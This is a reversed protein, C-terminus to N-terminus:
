FDCALNPIQKREEKTKREKGKDKKRYDTYDRKKRPAGKVIGGGPGTVRTAKWRGDTDKHADFEIVEGEELSQFGSSVIATYHVFIDPGNDAQLFGFGKDTDFWKCIGVYAM